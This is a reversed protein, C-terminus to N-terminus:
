VDLTREGPRLDVTSMFKGLIWNWLGFSAVLNARAYYSAVDAFVDNLEESWVKSFLQERSEERLALPPPPPPPSM